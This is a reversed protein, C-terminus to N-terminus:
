FSGSEFRSRKKKLPPRLHQFTDLKRSFAREPLLPELVKTKAEQKQQSVAHTVVPHGASERGCVRRRYRSAVGTVDQSQSSGM